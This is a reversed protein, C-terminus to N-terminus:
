VSFISRFIFYTRKFTPLLSPYEQKILDEQEEIFEELLDLIDDFDDVPFFIKILIRKKDPNEIEAKYDCNGHIHTFGDKKLFYLIFQKLWHFYHSFEFNNVLYDDFDKTISVFKAFKDEIYNEKFKIFLSKSDYNEMEYYTDFITGLENKNKKWFPDLKNGESLLKEFYRELNFMISETRFSYMWNLDTEIINVNSIMRIVWVDKEYLDLLKRRGGIM